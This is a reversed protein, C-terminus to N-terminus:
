GQIGDSGEPKAEVPDAPGIEEIHLRNGSNVYLEVSESDAVIKEYAKTQDPFGQPAGKSDLQTIKARM